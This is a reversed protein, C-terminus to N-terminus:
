ILVERIKALLTTLTFPKQIFARRGGSLEERFAPDQTYGSMFLVRLGPIHREMEEALQKGGMGPLVVDTLLLHLPQDYREALALAEAANPAELVLFGQQAILERVIRRVEEDDEVLLVTKPVVASARLAKKVETEVEPEDTTQPLYFSFSSGKGTETEVVVCGRNQTVIGYVTSLGLGSGKGRDKTTYFPDFIHPLHAKDIGQGSDSVSVRVHPGPRARGYAGPIDGDLDVNGTSVVLAGGKPMADRANVVLNMIVQELQVPDIRVRGAQPDVRLKLDITEELLHRLMREMSTLVLNPYIVKPQPIEQRSFALLQRILGAARESSGLIEGVERRCPHAPELRIMMLECYGMIAALLNNFDHAIGGALRGVAELKQSQRLQEEKIRLAEEARRSETKDICAGIWKVARGHSDFLAAGRDTWHRWGGQRDLIRYEEAFPERRSLHKEISSKVRAADEPHILSEWKELTRPVESEDFGLREAIPGFWDLRGTALDWEYILDNSFRAAVRLREESQRLAEEERRHETVDIFIGMLSELTGDAAFIPAGYVMMRTIKGWRGLVEVEYNSVIGRARKAIERELVGLSEPTFCEYYANPGAMLEDATEHELFGLMAPNIFLTTRDPKIQWIGVPSNQALVGYLTRTKHLDRRAEVLRTVDIALCQGGGQRLSVSALLELRAGDERRCTIEFPACRGQEALERAQVPGWLPSPTLCPLVGAAPGGLTPMAFMRRFAANANGRFSGSAPDPAPGEWFFMGVVSSDLLGAVRARLDNESEYLRKGELRLAHVERERADAARRGRIWLGFLLANVALSIALAVWPLM